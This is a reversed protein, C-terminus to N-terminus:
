IERISIWNDNTDGSLNPDGTPRNFIGRIDIYDGKNLQVVTSGNLMIQNTFAAQANRYSLRKYQAGNKYVGLLGWDAVSWALPETRIATSIDIKMYRDATFKWAVGTTVRDTGPNDFEKDEFDVILGAFTLTQAVNTSYNASLYQPMSSEDSYATAKTGKEVKIRRLFIGVSTADLNNLASFRIQGTTGSTIGTVEFTQFGPQDTTFVVLAFNSIFVGGATYDQLQITLQGSNRTNITLSLQFSLTFNIGNTVPSIFISQHSQSSGDNSNNTWLPGNGNIDTWPVATWESGPFFQLGRRGTSNILLNPSEDLKARTVAKDVIQPSDVTDAKLIGADTILPSLMENYFFRVWDAIWHWWWNWEQGPPEEAPRWGDAKRGASPESKTPTGQFPPGGGTYNPNTAFGLDDVPVIPKTM